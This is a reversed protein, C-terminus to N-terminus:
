NPNELIEIGNDCSDFLDQPDFKKLMDESDVFVLKKNHDIVVYEKCSSPTYSILEGTAMDNEGDAGYYGRVRAGRKLNKLEKLNKIFTRM